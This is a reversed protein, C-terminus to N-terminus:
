RAEMGAEGFERWVEIITIRPGKWVMLAPDSPSWHCVPPCLSKLFKRARIKRGGIERQGEEKGCAQSPAWTGVM